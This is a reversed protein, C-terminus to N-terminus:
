IDKLGMRRRGHNFWPSVTFALVDNAVYILSNIAMALSADGQAFTIGWLLLQFLGSFLWWIFQNSYRMFCMIGATLSVSFSLADIWPRPDPTFKGILYGSIFYVLVTGIIAVIWQKSGFKRLHKATDNNWSKISLLVPIDLTIAYAIQEFISLFNKSVWGAYIFCAASLLGLWGNIAKAANISLVCLVGLTSGIFTIIAVPTIPNAVLTMLQAGFSFWFLYYNQQPWGKIQNGLWTLYTVLNHHTTETQQM